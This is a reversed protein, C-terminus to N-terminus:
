LHPSRGPDSHVERLSRIGFRCGASSNDGNARRALYYPFAVGYGIEAAAGAEQRGGRRAFSPGM